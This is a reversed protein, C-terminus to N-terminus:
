IQKTEGLWKWLPRYIIKVGDIITTQEVDWTIITGSTQRLAKAAKVLAKTERQPVEIMNSAFTVQM